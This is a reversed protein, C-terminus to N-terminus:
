VTVNVCLFGMVRCIHQLFMKDKFTLCMVLHISMGSGNSHQHAGFYFMHAAIVLGGLLARTNLAHFYIKKISFHKICRMCCISWISCVNLFFLLVSKCMSSLSLFNHQKNAMPAVHQVETINCSINERVLCHPFSWRAQSIWGQYEEAAIEGCAVNVGWRWKSTLRSYM